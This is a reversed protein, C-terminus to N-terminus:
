LDACGSESYADSARTHARLGGFSSYFRNGAAFRTFALPGSLLMGDSAQLEPAAIGLSPSAARRTERLKPWLSTM